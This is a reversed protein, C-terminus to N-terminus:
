TTNYCPVDTGSFGELKWIAEQHVNYVGWGVVNGNLTPKRMDVAWYLLWRSPRARNRPLALQNRTHCAWSKQRM